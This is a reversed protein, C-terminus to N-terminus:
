VSRTIGVTENPGLLFDPEGASEIFVARRRGLLVSFGRSFSSRRALHHGQIVSLAPSGSILAMKSGKSLAVLPTEKRTVADGEKDLGDV